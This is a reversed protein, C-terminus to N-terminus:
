LEPKAGNSQLRDRDYKLAERYEDIVQGSVEGDPIKEIWEGELKHMDVERTTGKLDELISVMAQELKEWQYFETLARCYDFSIFCFWEDKEKAVDLAKGYYDISRQQDEITSTQDPHFFAFRYVSALGKWAYPNDPFEDAFQHHLEREKEYQQTVMYCERLRDFMPERM